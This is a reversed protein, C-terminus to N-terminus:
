TLAIKGTAEDIQAVKGERHSLIGPGMWWATAEAETWKGACRCAGLAEHLSAANPFRDQPRKELCRLIVAQLDAPVSSNVASPPEVPTCSHARIVEWVSSGVFPPRGTVLYYAVAGLSYIDSRADLKDYAEAQEPCMYLPSGSFYGEQTLKPDTGAVQERVLGFDLLKAVDYVGGREAAFINAPKIDRHILGKAHAESLASCAQRLFHVAREPALPGHRQVLQELSLGPLLEMAYYFTGDDARGYDFIEVTNWHTLRATARVEREFRALTAADNAKSPLILKIACPRKLLQHEAEHVEGMGGSGLKRVLRYQGLQRNKFAERRISHIIYAGYTAVSAAVFPLPFASGIDASALAESVAPVQLRLWFLLLYPLSAAVLLVSLARKWPNPMLIGYLLILVSWAGLYQHEVAVASAVDGARSFELLRASMMLLVQVCVAGFLGLEWYRLQALVLGPRTWLYLHSAVVAALIAARLVPLPSYTAFFSSVFALAMIVALVLTAATLRNQLLRATEDAFQPRDGQVLGVKHQSVDQAPPADIPRQEDSSHLLTAELADSQRSITM